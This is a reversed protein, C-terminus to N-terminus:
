HIFLRKVRQISARKLVILNDVIRTNLFFCLHQKLLLLRASFIHFSLLHTDISLDLERALYVTKGTWFHVAQNSLNVPDENVFTLGLNFDDVELVGPCHYINTGAESIVQCGQIPAQWMRGSLSSGRQYPYMLGFCVLSKALLINASFYSLPSAQINIRDWKAGYVSVSKQQILAVLQQQFHDTAIPKYNSIHIPHQNKQHTPHFHLWLSPIVPIYGYVLKDFSNDHCLEELSIRYIFSANPFFDRYNVKFERVYDYVHLIGTFESYIRNPTGRLVVLLSSSHYSHHSSIRYGALSYFIRINLFVDFDLYDFSLINCRLKHKMFLTSMHLLFSTLFGLGSDFASVINTSELV